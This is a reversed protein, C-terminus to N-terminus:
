MMKKRQDIHCYFLMMFRGSSEIDRALCRKVENAQLLLAMEVQKQSARVLSSYTNLLLQQRQQMSATRNKTMRFVLESGLKSVASKGLVRMILMPVLTMTLFLILLKWRFRM